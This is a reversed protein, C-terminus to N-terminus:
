RGMHYSPQKIQVNTDISSLDVDFVRTCIYQLADAPHSYANKEPNERLQGSRNYAYHYGGDMGGIIVKCAPSVVMAPKGGVNRQLFKVVASRRAQPNQLGPIPKLFWPSQNMLMVCSREDTDKRYFGAPDVIDVFRKVNPFWEKSKLTVEDLFRELGMEQECIERLLFLRMGPMLQAYVVAPTLGFDWGRLVPLHPAFNLFEKATHFNHNWDDMFVPRGEFSRWVLEYERLYQSYTIGKRADERWEKTDKKPDTSYHVRLVRFGNQPNTWKKFGKGADEILVHQPLEEPIEDQKKDNEQLM